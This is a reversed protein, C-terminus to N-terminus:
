LIPSVMRWRVLKMPLISLDYAHLTSKCGTNSFNTLEFGRQKSVPNDVEGTCGAMAVSLLFLCVYEKTKMSM